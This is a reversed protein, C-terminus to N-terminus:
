GAAAAPASAAQMSRLASMLRAGQVKGRVGGRRGRRAGRVRAGVGRRAREGHQHHLVGLAVRQQHQARQPPGAERQVMAADLARRLHARREGALGPVHHQRVEVQGAEVRAAREGLQVRAPEVQGEDHHRAGDAVLGRDLQHAAAGVVVQHLVVEGAEGGRDLALEALRADAGLAPARERRQVVALRHQALRLADTPDPLPAPVQRAARQPARVGQEPEEAHDRHRSLIREVGQEGAHVGVVEPAQQLGVAREGVAALAHLQLVADDMGVAAQAVHELARGAAAAGLGRRRAQDTRHVVDGRLAGRGLGQAGGVRAQALHRQAHEVGLLGLAARHGVLQVVLDALRQGRDLEVQLRHGRMQVGARRYRAQGRGDVGGLLRERLHAAQREVQARRLEVVHPQLGRQAPVGLAFARAGPQRELEIASQAFELGLLAARDHAEPQQLLREGVDDAM